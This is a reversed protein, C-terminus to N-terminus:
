RTKALLFVQSKPTVKEDAGLCQPGRQSVRAPCLRPEQQRVNCAEELCQVRGAKKSWKLDSCFVFTFAPILNCWLFPLMWLWSSKICLELSYADFVNFSFLLYKAFACWLERLWCWPCWSDPFVDTSALGRLLMRAPLGLAWSCRGGSRISVLGLRIWLTLIRDHCKALLVGPM